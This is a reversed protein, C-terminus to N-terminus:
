APVMKKVRKVVFNTIFSKPFPALDGVQTTIVTELRIKDLVEQLTSAFNEIIVIARAGSDKLQHELERPTYLPNVNVVVMGARLIGFVAIPYQLLNPMMVAVRDGLQLGLVNQLYSAFDQSLRDVDDYTLVVGMNEYAPRDRFKDCSKELVEAVSAFETPDIDAPVGAMYEALWVREKNGRKAM